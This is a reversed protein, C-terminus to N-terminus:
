DNKFSFTLVAQKANEPIEYPVTHPRSLFELTLYIAGKMANLPPTLGVGGLFKLGATGLIVFDNIFHHKTGKLAIVASQPCVSADRVFFNESVSGDKENVGNSGFINLGDEGDDDEETTSTTSASKTAKSSKKPISGSGEKAGKGKYKELPEDVSPLNNAISKSKLFERRKIPSFLIEMPVIKNKMMWWMESMINLTPVKGCGRSLTVASMPACWPDFTVAQGFRLDRQITSLITGGGFSHGMGILKETPSINGHLILRAVQLDVTENSDSEFGNSAIDYLIDAAIMCESVRHNLQPRRIKYWNKLDDGSLNLFHKVKGSDLRTFAATGDSHEIAAVVYGESVLNSILTAYVDPVGGLGHSYVIVRRGDTGQIPEVCPTVDPAGELCWPKTELLFSIFLDTPLKAVAALGSTANRGEIIYPIKAPPVVGRRKAVKKREEDSMRLTPYYLRIMFDGAGIVLLATDYQGSPKPISGRLPCLYNDLVEASISAFVLFVRLGTALLIDIKEFGNNRFALIASILGLYAMFFSARPRGSIFFHFFSASLVLVSSPGSLYFGFILLSLLLSYDILAAQTFKSYDLDM